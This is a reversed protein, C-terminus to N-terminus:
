FDIGQNRSSDVVSSTSNSKSSENPTKTEEEQKSDSSTLGAREKVFALYDQNSERKQIIEKSKDNIDVLEEHYLCNNHEFYNDLTGPHNSFVAVIEDKLEPRYSSIEGFGYIIMDKVKSPTNEDSLLKDFMDKTYDFKRADNVVHETLNSCDWYFETETEYNNKELRNCVADFSKDEPLSVITTTWTINNKDTM